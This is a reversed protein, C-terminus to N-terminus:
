GVKKEVSRTLLDHEFDPKYIRYAEAFLRVVNEMRVEIEAKVMPASVTLGRPIKM